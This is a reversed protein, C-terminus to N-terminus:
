ATADPDIQSEIADWADDVQKSFASLSALQEETTAPHERVSAIINKIGTYTAGIQSTVLPAMDTLTKVVSEMADTNKVGILPLVKTVLGIVSTVTSVIALANM